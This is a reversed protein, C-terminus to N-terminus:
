EPLKYILHTDFSPPTKVSAYARCPIRWRDNPWPIKTGLKGGSALRKLTIPTEGHSKDTLTVYVPQGEITAELIVVRRVLDVFLHRGFATMSKGVRQRFWRALQNSKQEDSKGWKGHNYLIAAYPARPDLEIRVKREEPGTKKQHTVTGELLPELLARDTESIATLDLEWGVHVYYLPM